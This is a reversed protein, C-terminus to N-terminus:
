LIARQLYFMAVEEKTWEKQESDEVTEKGEAKLEEEEVNEKCESM